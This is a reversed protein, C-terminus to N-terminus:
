REMSRVNPDTDLWRQARDNLSSMLRMYLDPKAYSALFGNHRDVVYGGRANEDYRLSFVNEVFERLDDDMAEYVALFDDIGSKRVYSETDADKLAELIKDKIDIGELSEENTPPGFFGYGESIGFDLDVMDGDHEYKVGKSVTELIVEEITHRVYSEFDNHRRDSSPAQDSRQESRRDSGEHRKDLIVIVFEDGGLRYLRSDAGILNARQLRRVVAKLVEDGAQHGFSDNIRKFRDLDLAVVCGKGTYGHDSISKNIADLFNNFAKRNAAGTLDDTTASLEQIILETRLSDVEHLARDRERIASDRAMEARVARLSEADLDNRLKDIQDQTTNGSRYRDRFNRLKSGVAHLLHEGNHSGLVSM